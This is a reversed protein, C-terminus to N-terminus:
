PASNTKPKWIAPVPYPKDFDKSFLTPAALKLYVVFDGAMSSGKAQMALDGKTTMTGFKSRIVADKRKSGDVLLQLGHVFESRYRRTFGPAFRDLGAPNFRRAAELMARNRRLREHTAPDPERYIPRRDVPARYWRYLEFLTRSRAVFPDPSCSSPGGAGLVLLALLGM